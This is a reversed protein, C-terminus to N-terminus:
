TPEGPACRTPAAVIGDRRGQVPMSAETLLSSGQPDCVRLGGTPISSRLLRVRPARLAPRHSHLALLLRGVKSHILPGDDLTQVVPISLELGDRPRGRHSHLGHQISRVDSAEIRVGLPDVHLLAPEPHEKLGDLHLVGLLDHEHPNPIEVLRPAKVGHHEHLM